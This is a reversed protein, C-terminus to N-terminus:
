FVAAEINRYVADAIVQHGLSSPHAGDITWAANIWADGSSVTADIDILVAMKAACITRVFNNFENRASKQDTTASSWAQFTMLMPVTGVARCADVFAIAAAKQRATGAATGIDADNTSFSLYAAANPKIRNVHAIAEPLSYVTSQGSYGCNVNVVPVSSIQKTARYAWGRGCGDTNDGHGSVTSAGCHLFTRIDSKGYLLFEVPSMQAGFIPANFNAPTTVGDVGTRFGCRLRAAALTPTDTLDFRSVQQGTPQYHRFMLISSPTFGGTSVGADVAVSPAAILDSEVYNTVATAGAGSPVASQNVSASGGWTVANWSETPVHESTLNKSWAFAAKIGTM